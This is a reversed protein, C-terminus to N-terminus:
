PAGRHQVLAAERALLARPSQPREPLVRRGHEDRGAGPGLPEVELERVDEHVVLEGPVRHDDLLADAADVADPLPAVAVDDVQRGRPADLRVHEM